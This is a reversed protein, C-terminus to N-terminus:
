KRENEFAYNVERSVRVRLGFKADPTFITPRAAMNFLSFAPSLPAAVRKSQHLALKTFMNSLNKNVM